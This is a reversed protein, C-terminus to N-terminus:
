RSWCVDTAARTFGLREYVRTAARNDEDVYLLVTALGRGALLHLGALTLAPGLGRGRESPDVGLVYVEGVPAHGHEAPDAGHVKTWHFGVLRARGDPASREALLFGEPDFWPERERLLVEQLGWRGQEPHDAFARANLATWEEEDQGVRFPRLRVGDPLVYPPLPDAVSRRMQWLVRGRAFGTARALAAAAPHEGHAWLRLPSGGTLRLLEDVLRRGVGARRAGPHVVLEGSPGAVPDTVDLHAYGVPGGAPDPGAVLVHRVDVDGGGPLHLLVHESLPLHGDAEAAAHVLGHVADIEPRTLRRVTRLDSATPTM